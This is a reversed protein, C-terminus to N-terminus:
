DDLAKHGRPTPTARPSDRQNRIDSAVLAPPVLEMQHLVMVIYYSMHCRAARRSRSRQGSLPLHPPPECKKEESGELNLWRCEGMCPEEAWNWRRVARHAETSSPETAKQSRARKRGDRTPINFCRPCDVIAFWLVGAVAGTNGRESLRCLM